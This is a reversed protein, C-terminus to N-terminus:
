LKRELKPLWMLRYDQGKIRKKPNLDPKLLLEFHTLLESKKVLSQEIMLAVKEYINMGYTDIKENYYSYILDSLFKGHLYNRTHSDLYKAFDEFQGQGILYPYENLFRERSIQGDESLSSIYFDNVCIILDTFTDDSLSNQNRILNKNLLLHYEKDVLTLIRGRNPIKIGESEFSLLLHMLALRQLKPLLAQRNKKVPALGMAKLLTSVQVHFYVGSNLLPKDIRSQDNYRSWDVDLGCLEAAQRLTLQRDTPNHILGGHAIICDLCHRDGTLCIAGFIEVYLTDFERKNAGKSWYPPSIRIDAIPEQALLQRQVSEEDRYRQLIEKPVKQSPVFIRSLMTSAVYSSGDNEALFDSDIYLLNYTDENTSDSM